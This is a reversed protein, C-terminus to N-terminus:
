IKRQSSVNCLNPLMLASSFLRKQTKDVYNGLAFIQYRYFANLGWGLSKPQQRTKPPPETTTSKKNLVAGISQTPETNSEQKTICHKTDKELKAIM